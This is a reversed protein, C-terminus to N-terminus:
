LYQMYVGIIKFEFSYVGNIEKSLYEGRVFEDLITHEGTSPNHSCFEVYDDWSFSVWKDGKARAMKLLNTAVTEKESNQWPTNFLSKKVDSPKIIETKSM